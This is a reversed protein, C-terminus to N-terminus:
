HLVFPTWNNIDYIDDHVHLWSDPKIKFRYQPQATPDWIQETAITVGGTKEAILKKGTFLNVPDEILNKTALLPVDANTM